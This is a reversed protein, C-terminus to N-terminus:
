DTAGTAVGAAAPLDAADRGTKPALTKMQRQYTDVRRFSVIKRQRYDAYHEIFAQVSGYPGAVHGPRKSDAFFFLQGADEYVVLWHRRLLNGAILRPDFEIMLYSAKAAPAVVRLTEVAFRALDVCVGAPREYLVPAAHIQVAPGQARQNESLQLARDLDYEFRAGIWANVDAPSRWTAIAQAYSAPQDASAPQAPRTEPADSAPDALAIAAAASASLVSFGLLTAALRARWVHM